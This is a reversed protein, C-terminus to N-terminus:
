TTILPHHHTSSLPMFFHLDVLRICQLSAGGGSEPSSATPLQMDRNLEGSQQAITETQSAPQSAGGARVSGHGSFVRSYLALGHSKKKLRAGGM